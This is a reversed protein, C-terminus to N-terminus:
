TKGILDAFIRNVLRQYTAGANKLGFPMVKYCYLGRDTVFTTKIQDPEHMRIQNYGSYADMFSLLEHGATADVLQEIRPLPFCDKPCAKNLDKYDICIRWKGNPKKVMVVNAVWKPYKAERIFGASLLKEVEENIALYREPNFARRAQVKEAITKDDNLRHVIVDPDIGPMDAHTWAFVDKFERLFSALQTKIALPLQAGIKVVQDPKAEDLVISTLDDPTDVKLREINDRPDLEGLQRADKQDCPYDDELQYITNVRKEAPKGDVGQVYCIRAQTQDGAMVGIGEETPFKVLLHYTSTIARLRNLTPRGIIVNYPSEQDVVLFPVMHVVEIGGTTGFTVPLDIIGETMVTEGTFGLLPTQTPIPRIGGLKM